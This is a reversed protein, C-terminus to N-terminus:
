TTTHACSPSLSSHTPCHWSSLLTKNAEDPPFARCRSVVWLSSRGMPRVALPRLTLGGAEIADQGQQWGKNGDWKLTDERGGEEEGQVRGKGSGKAGEM